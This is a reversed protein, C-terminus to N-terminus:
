RVEIDKYKGDLNYYKANKLKLKLREIVVEIEKILDEKVTNIRNSKLKEVSTDEPYFTYHMSELSLFLSLSNIVAERSLSKDGKFRHILNKYIYLSEETRILNINHDYEQRTINLNSMHREANKEQTLQAQKIRKELRKRDNEFEEFLEFRNLLYGIEIFIKQIYSEPLFARERCLQEWIATPIDDYVYWDQVTPMIHAVIGRVGRVGNTEKGILTHLILHEILDCYVLNEKKHYEYPYKFHAIFKKDSINEYKTELTHHCYLGEGTKSYKGRAITKIEGNLFKAYSKERYYDDIVEGHKEILQKVADEYTSNLLNIYYNYKKEYLNDLDM